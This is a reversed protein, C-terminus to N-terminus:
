EDITETEEFERFIRRIKFLSYSHVLQKYKNYQQIKLIEYRLLNACLSGIIVFTCAVPILIHRGKKLLSSVSFGTDIHLPNRFYFTHTLGKFFLYLSASGVVSHILTNPIIYSHARQLAKIDSDDLHKIPQM